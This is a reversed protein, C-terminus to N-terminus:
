KVLWSTPFCSSVIYYLRIPLLSLLDFSILSLSLTHSLSLSLSLTESVLLGVQHLRVAQYCVWEEGPLLRFHLLGRAVLHCVKRSTDEKESRSTRQFVYNKEKTWSTIIHFVLLLTVFGHCFYLPVWCAAEQCPSEREWLEKSQHLIHRRRPVLAECFLILFLCFSYSIKLSFKNM